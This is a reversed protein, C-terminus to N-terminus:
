SQGLVRVFFFVVVIAHRSRWDHAALLANVIAANFLDEVLVGLKRNQDRVRPLVM